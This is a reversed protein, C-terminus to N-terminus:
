DQIVRVDVGGHLGNLTSVAATGLCTRGSEHRGSNRPVLSPAERLAELTKIRLILRAESRCSMDVRMMRCYWSIRYLSCLMGTWSPSKM